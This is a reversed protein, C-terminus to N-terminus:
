CNAFLGMFMKKKQIVVPMAPALLNTGYGGIVIDVKDVDLLKQYLAPVTAPNTQDDYYVLKVAASGRRQRQCRGGLDAARAAGVQQQSRARLRYQSAHYQPSIPTFEERPPFSPYTGVSRPSCIASQSLFSPMDSYALRKASFSM